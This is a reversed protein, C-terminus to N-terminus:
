CFIDKELSMYNYAFVSVTWAGNEEVTRIMNKIALKDGNPIWGLSMCPVKHRSRQLRRGHPGAVNSGTKEVQYQCKLLTCVM